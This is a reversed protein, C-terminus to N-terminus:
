TNPLQAPTDTVTLGALSPAQLNYGFSKPSADVNYQCPAFLNVTHKKLSTSYAHKYCVTHQNIAVLETLNTEVRIHFLEKALNESKDLSRSSIWADVM